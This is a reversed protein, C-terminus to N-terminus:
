VTTCEFTVLIDKNYNDYNVIIYIYIYIHIYYILIYVVNDIYKQTYDKENTEINNKKKGFGFIFIDFM